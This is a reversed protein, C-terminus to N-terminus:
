PRQVDKNFRSRLIHGPIIYGCLVATALLLLQVNYQSFFAFIALLWNVYAGYILPRFRLAGGSIHLWMAYVIMLVPYFAPWHETSPMLFCVLFMSIVFARMAYRMLDDIYTKVRVEKKTVFSMIGTVIGGLPMLVVWAMAHYESIPPLMFMMMTYDAIAGIFVLWGWLIFYFGNDRAEQKASNIMTEILQLANKEDMEM